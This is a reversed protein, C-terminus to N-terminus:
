EKPWHDTVDILQGSEGKYPQLEKDKAICNLVKSTQARHAIWEKNRDLSDPRESLTLKRAEALLEDGVERAESMEDSQLCMVLSELAQETAYLGVTATAATPLVSPLM